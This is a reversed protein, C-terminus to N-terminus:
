IHNSVFRHVTCHFTLVHMLLVICTHIYQIVIICIRVMNTISDQPKLSSTRKVEEKTKSLEERITLGRKQVGEYSIQDVDLGLGFQKEYADYIAELILAREDNDKCHLWLDDGDDVHLVLSGTRTGLSEGRPSYFIQFPLSVAIIDAM